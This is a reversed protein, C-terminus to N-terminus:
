QPDYNRKQVLLTSIQDNFQQPSQSTKYALHGLVKGDSNLLLVKPFDGAPNYKEALQENHKKQAAPLQNKKRYPFDLELLVLNQDAYSTFTPSELITKKLSMCPKCWDSGSFVMLLVKQDKQAQALSEDFNHSLTQASLYGTLLLALLFIGTKKM